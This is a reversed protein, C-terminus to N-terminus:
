VPEVFLEFAKFIDAKRKPEIRALTAAILRKQQENLLRGDVNLKIVDILPDQGDYQVVPYAVPSGDLERMDRAAMYRAWGDIIVRGMKVIPQARGKELDDAIVATDQGMIGFAMSYPSREVGEPPCSEWTVVGPAAYRPAAPASAGATKDAAVGPSPKTAPAPSAGAVEQNHALRAAEAGGSRLPQNGEATPETAQEPSHPAASEVGSGIGLADARGGRDNVRDDDLNQDADDAAVNEGGPNHSIADNGTEDFSHDAADMALHGVEEGAQIQPVQGAGLSSSVDGTLDNAPSPRQSNTNSNKPTSKVLAAAEVIALNPNARLAAIPDPTEETKSKRLSFEVKSNLSNRRDRDESYVQRAPAMGLASMYLELIAEQEMRDNVDQKRIGVVRRLVKVDFGNGRAEAYIEKIDSAIAAKEEELREIREVFARIQDQAVIEEGAM